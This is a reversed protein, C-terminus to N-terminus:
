DGTTRDIGCLEGPLGRFINHGSIYVSNIMAIVTYVLLANNQVTIGLWDELLWMRVVVELLPVSIGTYLLSDAMRSWSVYRNWPLLMSRCFAGGGVMSQLVNRVATIAFWLLTQVALRAANTVERLRAISSIM